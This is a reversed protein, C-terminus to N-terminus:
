RSGGNKWIRIKEKTFSGGTLPLIWPLSRVAAPDDYEWKAPFIKSLTIIM